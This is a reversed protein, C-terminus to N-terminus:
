CSASFTILAIWAFELRNDRDRGEELPVDSRLELFPVSQIWGSDAVIRKKMNSSTVVRYSSEVGPNAGWRAKSM